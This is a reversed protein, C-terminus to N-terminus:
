GPMVVPLHIRELGLELDVIVPDHDSSRYEDATYLSVVQGPSRDETSRELV